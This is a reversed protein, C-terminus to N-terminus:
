PHRDPPSRSTVYRGRPGVFGVGSVVSRIRFVVSSSGLRRIPSRLWRISRRASPDLAPAPMATGSAPTTAVPSLLAAGSCAPRSGFNGSSEGLSRHRRRLRRRAAPAPPHVASCVASPVARSSGGRLSRHGPRALPIGRQAPSEGARAFLDQAPALLDRGSCASKPRRLCIGALALLDRVSCGSGQVLSSARRARRRRRTLEDDGIKWRANPGEM